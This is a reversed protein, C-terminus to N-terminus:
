KRCIKVKLILLFYTRYTVYLYSSYLATAFNYPMLDITKLCKQHRAVESSELKNAKSKLM